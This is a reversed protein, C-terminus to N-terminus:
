VGEYVASFDIRDDAALAEVFGGATAGVVRPTTSVIELFGLTTASNIYAWSPYQLTNSNDWVRAVGVYERNTTASRFLANVPLSVLVANSGAASGTANVTIVGTCIVTKGIQKYFCFTPAKTSGIAGSQTVTPTWTTWGTDGALAAPTLLGAQAGTALHTHDASELRYVTHPDVAAAHVAVDSDVIAVWAGAVSKRYMVGTDDAFYYDGAQAEGVMAAADAAPGIYTAPASVVRVAM